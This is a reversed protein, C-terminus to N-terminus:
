PFGGRNNEQPHPSGGRLALAISNHVSIRRKRAEQAHSTEGPRTFFGALGHVFSTCRAGSFRLRYSDRFCILFIKYAHRPRYRRRWVETL